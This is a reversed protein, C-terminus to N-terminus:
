TTPADSCCVRVGMFPLGLTAVMSRAASRCARSGDVWAGGRAVRFSSPVGSDQWASGDDPAGHYDGHWADQTWERVNGHLDYLGFANAAGLSGVNVTSTRMTGPDAYPYADSADFNVFESTITRGLGFPTLTGARAAHEWEAESPLRYDRRSHAALRACFEVADDWSVREVPRLRHKTSAADPDLVRQVKPWAAVTRWQQNTVAFMGLCHAAVSVVHQPGECPLRLAEDSPSGMSFSGAPIAVMDLTLGDGLDESFMQAQATWREVNCYADLRVTEFEFPRLSLPRRPSPPEM